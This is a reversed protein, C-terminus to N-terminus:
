ALRKLSRRSRLHRSITEITLADIEVAGLAPSAARHATAHLTRSPAGIELLPRLAARAAAAALARKTHVTAATAGPVHTLRAQRGSASVEVPATAHLLAALAEARGLLGCAVLRALFPAAQHQAIPELPHRIM